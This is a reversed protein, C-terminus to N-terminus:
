FDSLQWEEYCNGKLESIFRSPKIIVHGVQRDFILLPYSLYLEDMARTAAVYFLRREEEINGEEVSKPNPFRGEACWIIFVVKWELGKAQHITTLVVKEDERATSVIEEGSIGSMLALESLFTDLSQYRTSFNTLQNIDELRADYNPFNYKMYDIYGYNLVSSIMESPAEKEKLDSLETFLGSWMDINERTLTKFTELLKGSAFLGVPDPHSSLYDYIHDATKKGIRPFLKLLRKWSIEDVPNVMVRLFAVVDKIHAQEFFRLGSRIEFPIDRRTFEMQLEMCHYHARYLVAIENLAIGEDRLELVRQAVFEAQQVVDRSAAVVPIVGTGKISKLEKPFQKRNQSISDNALELIEPTSRYNTELKFIRAEEYKRPFELINQFNAGRFSYISQADDGVVMVNRNILGMFDVIETQIRNTDQYEDVLIHSFAMAYAKRLDEDELLIRHWYCLLDDFDMANMAQKKRSYLGAVERIERVIDIFYPYREHVATEVDEMTNVAYSFVEKLVGGKPFRKDRRDIKSEKLALEILDKADENDLITFSRTFGVRECHQRLIMNGIHHFTGGWMYRTDTKLLHEVRHLMERAAKNTFTLLLISTPAIRRELLRAVRYTVVRTKGSGAGAIVLIPGDSCTVANFQEENLEKEYDIRTSPSAVDRHITYKKMPHLLIGWSDPCTLCAEHRYFGSANRM